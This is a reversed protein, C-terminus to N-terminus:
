RKERTVPNPARAATLNREFLEYIRRYEDQWSDPRVFGHDEVPYSALEWGTKHLEILRQELRVIDQYHVNRDVMGHLMLLPDELGEAFYIPSSQRYAVTDDQPLNLIRGTYEHNYHAWDTVSRIAAGAGFSKPATFLAMLTIFGGYSGGYIGVREPDIGFEKQLYRSGDVQDQLDRGGMHRYIATRWDRGYGASGRYDIDLVVYGKSALYQNFMYERFYYSWSHTVNHLYGAGHVFIVGAGNPKSGMDAPRYIRAPVSVGDSAPIRVIAPKLWPFSLWDATPSVTLQAERAGARNALLYIEPPRNDVSFLDAILLGNPSLTATHSGPTNTILERPGGAAPMRWLQRDFPSTESTHLYFWRGDPTLSVDLVEWKGSTMQKRATGDAAVSYLHAFGDAESVFWLRKGGEYWGGCGFCPGDAWASDRLTDVVKVGGSDADITEYYRTKFDAALAYVLAATGRENWGLFGNSAPAHTSDGPTLRLWRVRGSPLSVWAVRGSDQADGVKNREKIEETYGSRTVYEPVDTGRQKEASSTTYLLAAKGSPAVHITAVKEGKELYIPLTALSDARTHELKDLSDSRIADRITGLLAREERELAVRQPPKDDPKPAPGPRVDTLQHVLGGDVDLAFLNEDRVFYVRKGDADFRPNTEHARTETLRRASGRILDVIYLDGHYSVVRSRRDPSLEGPEALPGGSDQQASTLREPKAGPEARVRFTGLPENWARGPELWQFYIWKGDASWRVDEPERGTLEHGRMINAVSFDFTNSAPSQAAARRLLAAGILIALSLRASPM